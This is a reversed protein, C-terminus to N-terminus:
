NESSIMRFQSEAGRHMGSSLPRKISSVSSLARAVRDIRDFDQEAAHFRQAGKGTGQV